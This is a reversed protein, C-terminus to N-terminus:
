DEIKSNNIELNYGLANYIANLMEISINSQRLLGSTASQSKGLRISLEKINVNEKVMLMRIENMLNETTTYIM